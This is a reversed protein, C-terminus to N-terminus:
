PGKDSEDAYDFQVAVKPTASGVVNFPIGYFAPHGFDPHLPADAGIAGIWTRSNRPVPLKSIDRTGFNHTPFIPCNPAGPVPAAYLTGCAMLLVVVIASRMETNEARKPWFNRIWRM